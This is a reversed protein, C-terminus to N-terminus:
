VNNKNFMINNSRKCNKEGSVLGSIKIRFKLVSTLCYRNENQKNNRSTLGSAKVIITDFPGSFIIKVMKPKLPM